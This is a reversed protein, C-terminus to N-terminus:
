QNTPCRVNVLDHYPNILPTRQIQSLRLSMLLNYIEQLLFPSFLLWKRKLSFCPILLSLSVSKHLHQSPGVLSMRERGNTM